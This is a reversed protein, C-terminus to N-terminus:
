AAKPRSEAIVVTYGTPELEGKLRRFLSAHWPQPTGPLAKRSNKLKQLRGM